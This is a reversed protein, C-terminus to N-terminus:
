GGEKVSMAKGSANDKRSLLGYLPIYAGVMVLTLLPQWNQILQTCRLFWLAMATALFLLTCLCLHVMEPWKCLVTKRLLSSVIWLLLSLIPLLRFLQFSVGAQDISEFFPFSMVKYLDVTTVFNASVIEIGFVGLLLWLAMLTFASHVGISAWLAYRIASAKLGNTYFKLFVLLEIGSFLATGSGAAGGLRQPQGSWLPMISRTEFYPLSGLIILVYELVRVCLAVFFLGAFVRIGGKAAVIACIMFLVIVWYSQFNPTQYDDLLFVMQNLMIGGVLLLAAFFLMLLVIGAPKGFAALHSAVFDKNNSGTMAQGLPTCLIGIVIAIALMYMFSSTGVFGSIKCTVIYYNAAGQIGCAIYFFQWATIRDQGM